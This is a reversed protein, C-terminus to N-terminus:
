EGIDEDGNRPGPNLEVDGSLVLLLQSLKAGYGDYSSASLIFDQICRFGDGITELVSNTSRNAFYSKVDTSKRISKPSYFKVRHYLSAKRRRWFFHIVCLIVVMGFFALGTLPLSTDEELELSTTFSCRMEWHTKRHLYRGTLMAHCHSSYFKRTMIQVYSCKILKM